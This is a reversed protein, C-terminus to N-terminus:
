HGRRAPFRKRPIKKGKWHQFASVRAGEITGIDPDALYYKMKQRFAICVSGVPAREQFLDRAAQDSASASEEQAFEVSIFGRSRNVLPTGVEVDCTAARPFMTSLRGLLVVVRAVQWGGPTMSNNEIVTVFHFTSPPINGFVMRENGCGSAMSLVASALLALAPISCSTRPTM